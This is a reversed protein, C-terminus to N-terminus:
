EGVALIDLQFTGERWISGLEFVAAVNDCSFPSVIQDGVRLRLRSSPCTEPLSSVTLIRSEDDIEVRASKLPGQMIVAECVPEHEEAGLLGSALVHSDLVIAGDSAAGGFIRIAFQLLPALSVRSWEENTQNEGRTREAGLESLAIAEHYLSLCAACSQIHRAEPSDEGLDIECLADLSICNDTFMTPDDNDFDLPLM